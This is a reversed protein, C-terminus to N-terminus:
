TPGGDIIQHGWSLWPLPDVEFNAMPPTPAVPSSPPL